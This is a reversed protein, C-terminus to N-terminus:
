ESVEFMGDANPVAPWSIFDVYVKKVETENEFLFSSVRILNGDMFLCPAMLKPKKPEPMQGVMKVIMLRHRYDIEKRAVEETPCIRLIDGFETCIAYRVIEKM